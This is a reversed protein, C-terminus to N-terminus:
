SREPARPCFQPGGFDRTSVSRGGQAAPRRRMARGAVDAALSLSLGPRPSRRGESRESAARPHDPSATGRNDHTGSARRGVGPRPAGVSSRSRPPRSGLIAEAAACRSLNILAISAEYLIRAEHIRTPANRALTLIDGPYGNAQAVRVCDMWDNQLANFYKAKSTEINEWDVSKLGPLHAYVPSGVTQRDLTTADRFIRALREVEKEMDCEVSPSAGAHSSREVDTFRSADYTIRRDPAVDFPATDSTRASVVFVGRPCVGHRVGLEYYVNANRVSIDAVVLDATVLEFYMDTRIDGAGANSDGRAVEYGARELAPKFLCGFIGDFDVIPGVAQQSGGVGLEHEARKNGFPMVVFARPQM